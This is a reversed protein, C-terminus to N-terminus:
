NITRKEMCATCCIHQIDDIHKEVVKCICEDCIMQDCYECQNLNPKDPHEMVFRENCDVCLEHKNYVFRVAKDAPIKVWILNEM